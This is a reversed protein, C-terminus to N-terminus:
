KIWCLLRHLSRYISKTKWRYFWNHMFNGVLLQFIIDITGLAIWQFVVSIVDHNEYLNYKGTGIDCTDWDQYRSYPFTLMHHYHFIIDHKSKYCYAHTIVIYRYRDIYIYLLWVLKYIYIYIYIYIMFHSIIICCCQQSYLRWWIIVSPEPM